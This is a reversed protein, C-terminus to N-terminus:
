FIVVNNTMMLIRNLNVDDKVISLDLAIRVCTVENDRMQQFFDKDPTHPRGGKVWVSYPNGNSNDLQYM